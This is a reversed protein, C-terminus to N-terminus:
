GQGGWQAVDVGTTIFLPAGNADTWDQRREWEDWRAVRTVNRKSLKKEGITEDEFDVKGAGLYAELVDTIRDQVAAQTHFVAKDFVLNLFVFQETQRQVVWLLKYIYEHLGGPGHVRVLDGEQLGAAGGSPPPSGRPQADAADGRADTQDTGDAM